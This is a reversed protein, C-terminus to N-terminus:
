ALFSCMTLQTNAKRVNLKKNRFVTRSYFGYLTAKNKSIKAM